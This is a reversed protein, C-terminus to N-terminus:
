GSHPNIKALSHIAIALQLSLSASDRSCSPPSMADQRMLFSMLFTGPKETKCYHHAYPKRRFSTHAASIWYLPIAMTMCLDEPAPTPLYAHLHIHRNGGACRIDSIYQLPCYGWCEAVPADQIYTCRLSTRIHLYTCKHKHQLLVYPLQVYGNVM